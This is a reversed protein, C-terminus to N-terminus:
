RRLDFTNALYVKSQGTKLFGSFTATAEM